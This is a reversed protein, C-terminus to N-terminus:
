QLKVVVGCYMLLLGMIKHKDSLLKISVTVKCHQHYLVRIPPVSKDM